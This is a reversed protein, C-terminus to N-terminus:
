GLGLCLQRIIDLKEILTFKHGARLMNELSDGPVFEM